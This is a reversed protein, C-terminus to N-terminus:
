ELYGLAKLRAEISAKEEVTLAAVEEEEALARSVVEIIYTSPDKRSGGKLRAEIKQILYTPIPVSTMGRLPSPLRYGMEELGTLIKRLSAKPDEQDTEVVLEPNLPEEYPDSVGTFSQIEGALARRYFGKM